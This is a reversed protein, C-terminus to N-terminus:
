SDNKTGIPGVEPLVDEWRKLTGVLEFSKRYFRVYDGLRIAKWADLPPRRRKTQDSHQHM